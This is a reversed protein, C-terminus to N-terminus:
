DHSFSSDIDITTTILTYHAHLRQIEPLKYEIVENYASELELLWTTIAM